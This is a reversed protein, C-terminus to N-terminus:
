YFHQHANYYSLMHKVIFKHRTNRVIYYFSEFNLIKTNKKLVYSDYAASGPPLQGGGM